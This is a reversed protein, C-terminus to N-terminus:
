SQSRRARRPMSSRPEGVFWLLRPFSLRFERGHYSSGSSIRPSPKSGGAQDAAFFAYAEGALELALGVVRFDEESFWDELAFLVKFKAQFGASCSAKLSRVEQLAREMREYAIEELGQRDIAPAPESAPSTDPNFAQYARLAELFERCSQRLHSNGVGADDGGDDCPEETGVASGNNVPQVRGFM